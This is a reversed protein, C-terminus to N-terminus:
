NNNLEVELIHVQNELSPYDLWSVQLAGSPLLSLVVGTAINNPGSINSRILNEVRPLHHIYLALQLSLDHPDKTDLLLSCGRHEHPTPLVLVLETNKKISSKFQIIKEAFIKIKNASGVTTAIIKSRNKWTDKAAEKVIEAVYLASMAAFSKIWWDSNAIFQIWSPPEASLLFVKSDQIEIDIDPRLSKRLEYLKESPVDATSILRM